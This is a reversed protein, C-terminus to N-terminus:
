KEEKDKDDRGITKVKKVSDPESYIKESAKHQKSGITKSVDLEKAKEEIEMHLMGMENKLMSLTERAKQRRVVEEKEADSPSKKEPEEDLEIDPILNDLAVTLRAEAVAVKEKFNHLVQDFSNLLDQTNMQELASNVKKSHKLENLKKRLEKVKQYHVKYEEKIQEYEKPDM